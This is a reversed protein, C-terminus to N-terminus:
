REHAIEKSAGYCARSCYIRNKSSYALFVKGCVPCTLKIQSSRQIMASHATWWLQRCKDCCFKKEKRHLMQPIEAHCQLCFRINRKSKNFPLISHRQCYSKITNASIGLQEAISPIPVGCERMETIVQKQQKTM